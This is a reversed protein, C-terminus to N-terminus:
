SYCFIKKLEDIIIKFNRTKYHSKSQYTNGHMPDCTWIVHLKNKTIMNILKPLM